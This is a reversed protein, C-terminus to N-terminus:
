NLVGHLPPFVNEGGLVVRNESRTIARYFHLYYWYIQGTLTITLIIQYMCPRDKIKLDSRRVTCAYVSIQLHPSGTKISHGFTRCVLLM